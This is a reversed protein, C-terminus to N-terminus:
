NKMKCNSVGRASSLELIVSRLAIIDQAGEFLAVLRSIWLTSADQFWGDFCMM